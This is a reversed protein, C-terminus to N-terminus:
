LELSVAFCKQKTPLPGRHVTAAEKNETRTLFVFLDHNLGRVQNLKHNFWSETAITSWGYYPGPRCGNNIQWPMTRGEVM